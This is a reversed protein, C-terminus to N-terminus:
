RRKVHVPAGGIEQTLRETPEACPRFVQLGRAASAGTRSSATWAAVVIPYVPHELRDVPDGDAPGVAGALLRLVAVQTLTLEMMGTRLRNRYSTTCTREVKHCSTDRALSTTM